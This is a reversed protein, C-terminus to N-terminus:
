PCPSCPPCPSRPLRRSHVRITGRGRLSSRHRGPYPDRRAGGPRQMDARGPRRQEVVEEGAVRAPGEDQPELVGVHGAGGHLVLAVDEIPQMPEAEVPVLSGLNGALRRAARVPGISLHLPQIEIASGSVTEEGLVLGVVAVARGLLKGSVTRRLLCVVLGHVVDAAARVQRRHLTVSRAACPSLGTMRKRTPSPITSNSSM